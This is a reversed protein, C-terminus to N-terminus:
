DQDLFSKRELAKALISRIEDTQPPLAGIRARQRLTEQALAAMLDIAEPAMTALADFHGEITELDARIVPGTIAEAAQDEQGAQKLAQHALRLYGDVVARPLGASESLAQAAALLTVVGGAAISAAAHYLARQEDSIDVPRGGWGSVIRRTLRRTGPDGGIAFVLNRADEVDDSAQPFARLPHLSGIETASSRLPALVEVPLYGSAHLVVPAQPQSALGAAVEALAHDSTTLLLLDDDSTRLASIEASEGGLAQTVRWASEARRSAVRSLRAGRATLWHALSLGVRGPGVVSFTLTLSQAPITTVASLYRRNPSHALKVM